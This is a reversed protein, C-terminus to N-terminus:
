RCKCPPVGECGACVARDDPEDDVPRIECLARYCEAKRHFGPVDPAAAGNGMRVPTGWIGDEVVAKTTPMAVAAAMATPNAPTKMSCTSRLCMVSASSRGGGPGALAITSGAGGVVEPLAM